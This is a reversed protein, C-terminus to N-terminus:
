LEGSLDKYDPNISEILTIKKKRSGAKIQKERNIAEYVNEFVEYYVLKNVNYKATFSKPNDKNKHQDVRSALDNTIGTYLVTNNPNTIIYVFYEQSM